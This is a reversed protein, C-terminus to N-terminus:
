SPIVRRCTPDNTGTAELNVLNSGKNVIRMKYRDWYKGGSAPAVGVLAKSIARVQTLM